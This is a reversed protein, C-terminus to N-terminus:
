MVGPMQDPTINLLSNNGGFKNKVRNPNYPDDQWKGDVVIRYQYQGPTVYLEKKLDGNGNFTKIGRDPIWDNFEGAIKVDKGAFNGYDWIVKKSEQDDDLNDITINTDEVLASALEIVESNVEEALLEGSEDNVSEELSDDSSLENILERTADSVADINGTESLGDRNKENAMELAMEFAKEVDDIRTDNSRSSMDVSYVDGETTQVVQSQQVINRITKELMDHDIDDNVPSENELTDSLLTDSVQTDNVVNINGLANIDAEVNINAVPLQNFEKEVIDKITVNDIAYLEDLRIMETALRSYDMAAVCKASHKIVPIGKYVAEKLKITQHINVPLVEDPFREWIQKLFQRSLLTRNDIITPLISIPLNINNKDAVLDITENLREVGDLSFLSMEIPILVRNAAVLVNISITGLTPPCDILVFDYSDKVTKLHNALQQDRDEADLLIHDLAALSITAPVLDVGDTIDKIIVDELSSNGSMVEFLGPMDDCRKGLGLSAHGQPDTDILLVKKNKNGLCAALNIATTTKGCGGKQNAIAIVSM